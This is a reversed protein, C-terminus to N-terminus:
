VRALEWVEVQERTKRPQGAPTPGPRVRRNLKQVLRLRGRELEALIPHPLEPRALQLVTSFVLVIRGAPSLRALAQDFFREFLGEEFILASDLLGQVKGQQWPPNFVVLDAAARDAGFLDGHLLEIPPPEPLRKCQRAVSEIANPNIDTALVSGFGARCLLLALVGCGTGVDVARRRPGSWASLWTAFLELHETRTPAYVGYYPHLRQGLVPVAVGNQYREWAGHLEQVQAFPLFFRPRGPYLEAFLGNPRGGSLALRHKEIPALLGLATARAALKHARREEFSADPDPEGLAAALVALIEAGTSYRDTVLLPEGERLRAAAWAPPTAQDVPRASHTFIPEPRHLAPTM